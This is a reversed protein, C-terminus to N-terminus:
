ILQIFGFLFNIYELIFMTVAVNNYYKTKLFIELAKAKRPRGYHRDKASLLFCQFHTLVIKFLWTIKNCTLIAHLM